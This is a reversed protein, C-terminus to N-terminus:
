LGFRVKLRGFIGRAEMFRRERIPRPISGLLPLDLYRKVDEPSRVTKTMSERIGALVMGCAVGVLAALIVKPISTTGMPKRPAVAVDVVQVDIMQSAENVRAEEYRQALLYYVERAMGADRELRVFGQEKRPLEVLERNGKTLIENVADRQAIAAAVEAEALVQAQVKSQQVLNISPAGASVVRAVESNLYAKTEEIENETAKVQPHTLGYSQKQSVLEVELEALKTKYQQVLPSETLMGQNNPDTQQRLNDLKAQRAALGVTNAAAIAQINYLRTIMANTEAGLAVIKEDQKYQKLAIEAQELDRKAEQLRQGFFARVRSQEASALGAVREMFVEALTNALYQAEAPSSARVKVKLLDTDKVPQTIIQGRLVEYGSQRIKDDGSKEIVKEIVTRSKFIEAYTMMQQRTDVYDWGHNGSFMFTAAQPQKIRITTETEYVPRSLYGMIIPVLAASLSIGVILLWRRALMKIFARLDLTEENM